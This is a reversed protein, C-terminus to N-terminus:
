PHGGEDRHNLEELIEDFSKGPPPPFLRARKLRQIFEREDQTNSRPRARRGAALDLPWFQRSVDGCHRDGSICKLFVQVDERVAKTVTPAFRENTKGPLFTAHLPVAIKRVNLFGYHRGRADTVGREPLPVGGHREILISCAHWAGNGLAVIATPDLLEIEEDLHAEVAHGVALRRAETELRGYSSHHLPWKMAQVFFYGTRVFRELAEMSELDLDAPWDPLAPFLRDRLGDGNRCRWLGGTPPPAEGIFLVPRKMPVEFPRGPPQGDARAFRRDQCGSCRDLGAWLALLRDANLM